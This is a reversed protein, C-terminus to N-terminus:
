TGRTEQIRRSAALVLSRPTVRVLQAFLKNGFGPVVLRRGRQMGRYGAVAVARVDLVLPTRFLRTEGMGARKQFETV